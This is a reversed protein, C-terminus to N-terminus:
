HMENFHIVNYINGTVTGVQAQESSDSGPFYVTQTDYPSVLLKRTAVASVYVKAGNPTDKPLTITQTYHDASKMMDGVFAQHYGNDGIVDVKYTVDDTVASPDTAQKVDVSFSFNGGALMPQPEFAWVKPAFPNSGNFVLPNVVNELTFRQLTLKDIIISANIRDSINGAKDVVQISVTKVVGYDLTWPITIPANPIPQPLDYERTGEFVKVRDVGSGGVDSYNLTLQVDRTATFIAGHNIQISALPKTTDSFISATRISSMNGAVDSIKVFVTKNGDGNSLTWNLSQSYPMQSWTIGDNSLYVDKVGTLTDSGSLALTVNPNNTFSDGNNISFSSITPPTTDLIIIDEIATSINGVQDAYQVWVHKLGDGNSLIWDKNTQYPEWPSWSGHENRFQMKAVGSYTDEAHLVLGVLPKNTILVNRKINSVTYSKSSVHGMNDEAQFSYTGNQGVQFSATSGNIWNGDPLQVRKVGTGADTATLNLVVDTNTLDLIDPVITLDPPLKDIKITKTTVDSISGDNNVVRASISTVGDTSLTFPTFYTTWNQNTSGALSYELHFGSLGTNGNDTITVNVNQETWQNEPTNLAIIPANPPDIYKITVTYAYRSEWTRNDVAPRTVNGQYKWVRTDSAPTCVNAYFWEAWSWTSYDYYPFETSSYLPQNDNDYYFANYFKYVHPQVYGGAYYYERGFYDWYMSHINVWVTQCSQPTYSGSEVYSSLWGWYGQWDSYYSGTQGSVWKTDAPTYSGGTQVVTGYGNSVNVTVQNGNVSYSVNGNDVSVSQVQKLNAITVTQSRNQQNNSPFSVTQTKLVATSAEAKPPSMSAIILQSM